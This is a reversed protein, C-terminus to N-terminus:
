LPDLLREGTKEELSEKGHVREEKQTTQEQYHDGKTGHFLLNEVHIVFFM